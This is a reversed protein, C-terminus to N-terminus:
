KLKLAPGETTILPRKKDIKPIPLSAASDKKKTIVPAKFRKFFTQNHGCHHCTLVTAKPILSILFLGTCVTIIIIGPTFIIIGLIMLAVKFSTNDYPISLAVSALAVSIPTSLILWWHYLFEAQPSRGYNFNGIPDLNHSCSPCCSPTTPLTLGQKM